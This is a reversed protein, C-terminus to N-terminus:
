KKMRYIGETPRWTATAVVRNAKPEESESDVNLMEETTAEQEIKKLAGKLVGGAAMFRLHNVQKMYELIWEPTRSILDDVKMSYNFAKLTEVAGKMAGGKIARVDVQTISQDRYCDRWLQLWEHHKVYYKGGLMSSPVLLLCHFHPHAYDDRTKDQTVETARIWGLVPKFAKRQSLRQWGRNMAGLTERLKGIPCNPVTLTLLIWRAKPYEEEIKPLQERFRGMRVLSKRGDCMTCHRCDCFFTDIAKKNVEGTEPNIVEGFGVTRTCGDMREAWRVFRQMQFLFDSMAQTTARQTDWKKDKPSYEALPIDISQKSVKTYSKLYQPLENQEMPFGQKTQLTLVELM